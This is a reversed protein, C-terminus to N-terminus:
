FNDMNILVHIICIIYGLKDDTLSKISLIINIKSNFVHINCIHNYKHIWTKICNFHYVHGCKLQININKLKHLCIVCNDSSQISPYTYVKCVLLYHYYKTLLKSYINTIVLFLYITLNNFTAILMINDKNYFSYIFLVVSMILNNLYNNKWLDTLLIFYLIHIYYYLFCCFNYYCITTLITNWILLYM